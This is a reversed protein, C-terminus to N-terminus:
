MFFALSKQPFTSVKEKIVKDTLSVDKEEVAELIEEESVKSRLEQTLQKELKQEAIIVSQGDKKDDDDLKKFKPEKSDKFLEKTDPKKDFVDRDTQIKSKKDLKDVKVTTQSETETESDTSKKLFESDEESSVQVLTSDTRMTKHYPKVKEEQKTKADFHQITEKVSKVTEAPKETEVSVKHTVRTELVTVQKSQERVFEQTYEIGQDQELTHKKLAEKTLKMTTKPLEVSSEKSMKSEFSNIKAKLPAEAIDKDDEIVLDPSKDGDELKEEVRSTAIEKQSIVEKTFTDKTDTVKVETNEVTMSKRPTITINSFDGSPFRMSENRIHRQLHKPTPKAPSSPDFKRFQQEVPREVPKVEEEKTVIVAEEREVEIDKEEEM